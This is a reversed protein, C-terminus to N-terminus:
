GIQTAAQGMGLGVQAGAPGGFYAGAAGGLLPLLGGSRPGAAQGMKLVKSQGQENLIQNIGGSAFGLQQQELLPQNARIGAIEKGLGKQQGLIAGIGSATRGLGRQAVLQEARKTQDAANQIAQAEQKGTQLAAMQRGQEGAYRGYGELMQEQLARGTPSALDIVEDPTSPTKKGLLTNSLGRQIDEAAQGVKGGLVAKDVAGSVVGPKFGKDFGMMGGTGINTAVNLIKGM